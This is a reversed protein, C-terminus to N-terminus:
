YMHKLTILEAREDETLETEVVHRKPAIMHHVKAIKDYPFHNEIVKWHKFVEIPERLCIPCGNKFLGKEKRAKYAAITEKTRYLDM